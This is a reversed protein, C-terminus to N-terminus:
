SDKWLFSRRLEATGDLRREDGQGTPWGTKGGLGTPDQVPDGPCPSLALSSREDEVDKDSTVFTDLSLPSAVRPRVTDLGRCGM